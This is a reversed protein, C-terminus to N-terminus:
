IPLGLLPGIVLTTVWGIVITVVLWQAVRQRMGRPWARLVYLVGLTAVVAEGSWLLSPPWGIIRGVTREDNVATGLLTGPGVIAIRSAASAVLSSWVLKSSRSRSSRVGLVSGGLLLITFVPGAGVALLQSGARLVGSRLEEPTYVLAGVGFHAGEHGLISLWFLVVLLALWLAGTQSPTEVALLADATTEYNEHQEIPVRTRM